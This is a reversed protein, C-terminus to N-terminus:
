SCLELVLKELKADLAVAAARLDSNETTCILSSPRVYVATTGSGHSRQSLLLEVPAFLGATVDLKMMTIAILPNGLIVRVTPRRIGYIALWAGHDFEGFIMFGSRGVYREKVKEEFAHSDRASQALTAIEGASSKGCADRLRDLVTELSHETELEVRKGEFDKLVFHATM